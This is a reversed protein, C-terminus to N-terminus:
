KLLDYTKEAKLLNTTHCFNLMSYGLKRSFWFYIYLTYITFFCKEGQLQCKRPIAWNCDLDGKDENEIM